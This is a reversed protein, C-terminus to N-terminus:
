DSSILTSTGSMVNQTNATSSFDNYNEMQTHCLSPYMEARPRNSFFEGKVPVGEIKRM